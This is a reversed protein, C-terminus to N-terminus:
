VGDVVDFHFCVGIGIQTWAIWCVDISHTCMLYPLYIGALEELCVHCCAKHSELFVIPALVKKKRKAGNIPSYQAGIEIM